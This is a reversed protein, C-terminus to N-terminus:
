LAAMCIPENRIPKINNLQNIQQSKPLSQKCAIQTAMDFTGININFDIRKYAEQINMFYCSRTHNHHKGHQKM